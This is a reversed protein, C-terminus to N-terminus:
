TNISLIRKKNYLLILIKDCLLGLFISLCKWMERTDKEILNNLRISINKLEDKSIIFKEFEDFTRTINDACDFKGLELDYGTIDIIKKDKTYGYLCSSDIDVIEKKIPEIFDKKESLKRFCKVSCCINKWSKNSICSKCCYYEEGCYACKRNARIM